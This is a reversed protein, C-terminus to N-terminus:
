RIKVFTQISILLNQVKCFYDFNKKQFFLEVELPLIEDLDWGIKLFWMLYPLAFSNEVIQSKACSQLKIQKSTIILVMFKQVRWFDKTLSSLYTELTCSFDMGILARSCGLQPLTETLGFLSKNNFKICKKNM